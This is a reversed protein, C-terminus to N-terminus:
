AGDIAISEILLHIADAIAARDELKDVDLCRLKCLTDTETPTLTISIVVNGNAQRARYRRQRQAHRSPPCQLM